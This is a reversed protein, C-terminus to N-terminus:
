SQYHVERGGLVIDGTNKARMLNEITFVLKNKYNERSRQGKDGPYIVLTVSPPRAGPACSLYEEGPFSILTAINNQSTPPPTSHLSKM